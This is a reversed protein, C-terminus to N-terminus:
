PLRDARLVKVAQEHCSRHVYTEHVQSPTGRGVLDDGGVSALLAFDNPRDRELCIACWPKM